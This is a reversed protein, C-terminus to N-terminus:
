NAVLYTEFITKQKHNMKLEIQHLFTLEMKTKIENSDDDEEAFQGEKEIM